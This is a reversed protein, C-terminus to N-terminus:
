ETMDRTLLSVLRGRLMAISMWVLFVLGAAALGMALWEDGYLSSFGTWPEGGFQSQHVELGRVTIEFVMWGVGALVAYALLPILWVTALAFCLTFILAFLHVEF